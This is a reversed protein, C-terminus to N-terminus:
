RTIRDAIIWNIILRALKFDLRKRRFGGVNGRFSTLGLGHTSERWDDVWRNFESVLVGIQEESLPFHPVVQIYARDSIKNHFHRSDFREYVRMLKIRNQFSGGDTAQLLISTDLCEQSQGPKMGFDVYNDCEPLDPRFGDRDIIIKEKFREDLWLDTCDVIEPVLYVMVTPQATDDCTSDVHIQVARIHHCLEKRLKTTRSAIFNEPIIAFIPVLGLQDIIRKISYEYLDTYGAATVLKYLRPDQKQLVHRHSYPPNTIIVPDSFTRPIDFFSDAVLDPGVDPDIDIAFTGVNEFLRLLHGAGAFPDVVMQSDVPYAALFPRLVEYHHTFFQKLNDKNLGSGRSLVELFILLICVTLM